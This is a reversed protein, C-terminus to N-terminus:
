TISNAPSPRPHVPIFSPHPFAHYRGAWRFELCTPGSRRPVSQLQLGHTLPAKVLYYLEQDELFDLIRKDFFGSDARLFALQVRDKAQGLCEALFAVVNDGSTANGSRLWAHLLVRSEALGALVPNHTMGGRKRPNYGQLAGEQEGFREVVTSDIDL